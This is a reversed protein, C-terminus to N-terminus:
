SLGELTTILSFTSAENSLFFVLVPAVSAINITHVQRFRYGQIM